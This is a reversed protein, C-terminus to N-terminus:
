MEWIFPRLPTGEEISEDELEVGRTPPRDFDPVYLPLHLPEPQWGDDRRERRSMEDYLLDDSRM